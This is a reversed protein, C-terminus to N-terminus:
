DYVHTVINLYCILDNTKKPPEKTEKKCQLAFLIVFWFQHHEHFNKASNYCICKLILVRIASKLKKAKLKLYLFKYM